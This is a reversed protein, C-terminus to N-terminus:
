YEKNKSINDLDVNANKFRQNLLTLFDMGTTISDKIALATIESRHEGLSKNISDKDSPQEAKTLTGIIKETYPSQFFNYDNPHKFHYILKKLVSEVIEHDDSSYFVVSDNRPYSGTNSLIKASFQVNLSLLQKIGLSWIKMAYTYSSAGVYHRYKSIETSHIYMFFGPTLNPRKSPLKIKNKNNQAKGIRIGNICYYKKGFVEEIHPKVLVGDDKVIESCRDKIDEGIDKNEMLMSNFTHINCYIWQSLDNVPKSLCNKYTNDNFIIEETDDNVHIMKSLDYSSFYKSM